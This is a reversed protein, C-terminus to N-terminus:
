SCANGKILFFTGAAVGLLGMTLGLGCFVAPGISPQQVEVDWFRALPEKLAPHEVTCSYIDGQQPVFDLRSFQNYTGDKNMFPVNIKTGETVKEGNKTWSLNVPAPYFGTVHCILINKENVEVDDRSYIVPSSPPDLEPPLDKYAKGFIKLNTRCLERESVSFEYRGPFTVPDVFDPQADVGRGRSFDAYWLEEDDLGFMSEAVTDSCGHINVDEHLVDASVSFVCSLILLLESVKMKKVMMM